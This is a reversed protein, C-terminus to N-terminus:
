FNSSDDHDLLKRKRVPEPHPTLSPNPVSVKNAEKVAAVAEAPTQFMESTLNKLGVSKVAQPNSQHYEAAIAEKKKIVKGHRNVIDGRANMSANGLAVANPNAAALAMMDIMKGRMTRVKM